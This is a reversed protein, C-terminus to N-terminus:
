DGCYNEIVSIIYARSRKPQNPAQKSLLNHHHVATGECDRYDMRVSGDRQIRVDRPGSIRRPSAGVAAASRGDPRGTALTRCCQYCVAWAQEENIPQSYLTLIEELCLDEEASSMGGHHQQQERHPAAAAAAADTLRREAM